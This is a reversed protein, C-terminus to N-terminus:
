RKEIENCNQQNDDNEICKYTNKQTKVKTVAQQGVDYATVPFFM